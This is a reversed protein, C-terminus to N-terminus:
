YYESAGGKKYAKIPTFLNFNLSVYFVNAELGDYPKNGDSETYNTIKSDKLYFLGERYSSIWM